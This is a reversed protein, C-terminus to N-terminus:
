RRQQNQPNNQQQQQQQTNLTREYIQMMKQLLETKNQKTKQMLEKFKNLDQESLDVALQKINAERKAKAANRSRERAKNQQELMKVTYLDKDEKSIKKLDESYKNLLESM